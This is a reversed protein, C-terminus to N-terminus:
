AQLMSFRSVSADEWVSQSCKKSEESTVVTCSQHKGTIDETILLLPANAQSVKELVPIIEKISEIKQDAVLIRANDFEVLQKEQLACSESISMSTKWRLFLSLSQSNALVAHYQRLYIFLCILAAFNWMGHLSFTLDVRKVSNLESIQDVEESWVCSPGGVLCPACSIVLNTVFQPSIYGRDILMGEQVEVTTELSNSTEISLVGDAGVADLAEAILAGVMEDNGASISAVNQLCLYHQKSEIGCLYPQQDFWSAEM